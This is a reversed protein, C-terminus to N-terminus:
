KAPSQKGPGTTNYHLRATEASVRKLDPRKQAVWDREAQTLQVEGPAAGAAGGGPYKGPTQVSTSPTALDLMRSILREDTVGDFAARQADTLAKLRDANSQKLEDDERQRQERYAAADAEDQKVKAELEAIRTANADRQAAATKAEERAASREARLRALEKGVGVDAPEPPDM